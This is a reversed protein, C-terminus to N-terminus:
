FFSPITISMDSFISKLDFVIILSLSPCQVIITPDIWSFIIIFIYAGLMHAGWYTLCINAFMFASTSLLIIITPFMLVGNEDFFLDNLCFISLFVCAKFHYILRLETWNLWETTNLEKCGWSGCCALGGQHWWSGTDVWVWTWQTLSAMWGDWGGDDGEGGARVREWCWPRKWHTLEECSTALYHLKLKLMLGDLSCGPSIEKLISQNSRRATWPDRLLRRWCLLEFVDIKQCEAKKVTWSEYGYMVVPFVM